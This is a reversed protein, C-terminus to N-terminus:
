TESLWGLVLGAGVTVEVTEQCLEPLSLSMTGCDCPAVASLRPRLQDKPM